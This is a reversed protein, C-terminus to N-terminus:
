IWKKAELAIKLEEYEDPRWDIEDTNGKGLNCDECLVQMNEFVLALHPYKSRPKIHDVHIIVKHTRYNRGCAMCTAKYKRIVRYRLKRWEDSLYFDKYKSSGFKRKKDRREKKRQSKSKKKNYIVKKKFPESGEPPRWFGDNEIAGKNLIQLKKGM